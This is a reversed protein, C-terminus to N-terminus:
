SQQALPRVLTAYGIYDLRLDDSVRFGGLTRRRLYGWFATPVPRVLSIGRLERVELGAAACSRRLEEPTLLSRYAHLHRPAWRLLAPGWILGLRAHWTRNPTAFLLVGGPRLVRAAERLLADPDDVHEIVEACAVADFAGGAFPLRHADGGLYALPLDGSAHESAARLSPLSADLGVVEFGEAALAEALLGGGCGLDLVRATHHGLGRLVEVFYASRVPNVEHLPAVPGRPDWWRAGLTDYWRNDIPM